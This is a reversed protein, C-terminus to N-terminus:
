ILKTKFIENMAFYARNATFTRAKIEETIDNTENIVTGLYKFIKVREIGINRTVQEEQEVQRSIRLYKTKEQNITLGVEESNDKLTRYAEIIDRENTCMIAIDDAYALIQNQNRFLYNESQIPNKQIVTDLVMNFLIPSLADGQRLGVNSNIPQTEEGGVRIKYQVEKITLLTLKKLKQPIEFLDLARKVTKHRVSDYAQKYDVFINHIDIGYERAKEAIQRMSFIQDSTSKGKRFGAQYNGIRREVYPKLRELVVHSLIKYTTNLLCIGRYNSCVAKDGKKHIPCLIGTNWARPMKENKWITQILLHIKKWLEQGGSKLLETPINDEGPAKNIKMKRITSRIEDYTPEPEPELGEENGNEEANEDEQEDDLEENDMNLLNTFFIREM